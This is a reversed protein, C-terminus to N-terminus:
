RKLHPMIPLNGSATRNLGSLIENVKEIGYYRDIENRMAQDGREYVRRIVYEARKEWDIKSMDVDWFIVPPINPGPGQTRLRELKLDYHVQLTMLSGEELDLAREIKLALGINLSRKGKLIANFTQPHEPLALAFPRQNINRKTLLREIVKGPHIGKYSEFEQTM